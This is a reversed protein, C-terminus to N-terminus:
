LFVLFYSVIFFVPLDDPSSSSLSAVASNDISPVPRRHIHCREAALAAALAEVGCTRQFSVLENVSTLHLVLAVRTPLREEVFSRVVVMLPDVRSLPRETTVHAPLPEDDELCELGVFQLVRSLFRIFALLAALGEPDVGVVESM